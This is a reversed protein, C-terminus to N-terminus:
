GIESEGTCGSPVLESVSSTPLRSLIIDEKGFKRNHKASARLLPLIRCATNFPISSSIICSSHMSFYFAGGIFSPALLYNM